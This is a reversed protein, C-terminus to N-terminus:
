RKEPSPNEKKTAPFSMNKTAEAMERLAKDLAEDDKGGSRVVPAGITFDITAGDQIPVEMDIPMRSTQRLALASTNLPQNLAPPTIAPMTLNPAPLPPPPVDPPRLNTLPSRKHVFGGPKTETQRITTYYFGLIAVVVIAAWFIRSKM